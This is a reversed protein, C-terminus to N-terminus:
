GAQPRRDVPVPPRVANGVGWLGPLRKNERGRFPSRVRISYDHGCIERGAEIRLRDLRSDVFPPPLLSMEVHRGGRHQLIPGIRVHDDDWGGVAGGDEVHPVAQVVGDLVDEDAPTAHLPHRGEPNRAGIVGADGGLVHHLPSKGVFVLGAVVQAPLGEDLARPVEHVLGGAGDQILEAGDPAATIPLPGAEGQVRAEAGRDTLDEDAEVLLLQDVPAFVDDVPAGAAEGGEGVLLRFSVLHLALEPVDAIWEGLLHASGGLIRDGGSGLGDALKGVSAKVEGDGGGSGLRHQAVRRYRHVGGVLAVPAQHAPLGLQREGAPADGDDGVVEHVPVEAGAHYLHGRGM